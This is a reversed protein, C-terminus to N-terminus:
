VYPTTPLTLHTYSVPIDNLTRRVCYLPSSFLRSTSSRKEVLIRQHRLNHDTFNREELWEVRFRTNKYLKLCFNKFLSERRTELTTLDAIENLESSPTNYGFIIKLASTQLKELRSKQSQNLMSHYVNSCFDIVPRLFCM